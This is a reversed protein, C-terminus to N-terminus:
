SSAAFMTIQYDVIRHGNNNNNKKKQISLAFQIKSSISEHVSLTM